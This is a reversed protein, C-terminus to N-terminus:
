LRDFAQWLFTFSRSPALALLCEGPFRSVDVDHRGALVSHDITAVVKRVSWVGADRCAPLVSLTTSRVYGSFKASALMVVRQSVKSRFGRNGTAGIPFM